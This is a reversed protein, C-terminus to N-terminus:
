RIATLTLGSPTITARCSSFGLRKLRFLLCPAAPSLCGPLHLSLRGDATVLAPLDAIIRALRQSSIEERATSGPGASPYMAYRM